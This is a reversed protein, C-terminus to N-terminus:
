YQCNKKITTVCCERECATLNDKKLRWGDPCICAVTSRFEDLVVCRYDCGCAPTPIAPIIIVSGHGSNDGPSIASLGEISRKQNIYSTGGEGNTSGGFTDGGSYGGGGGGTTCGGGGGGFGGQGHIGRASYCSEGGFAGTLLSMGSYPELTYGDDMRWGGGPGGTRNMEGHRQGNIEELEPEYGRGHQQSDDDFYHGIGLGGGGGAIILPVAVHAQNLLFVFTGGGGGGAGDEIVLNKVQKTKSNSSKDYIPDRSECM